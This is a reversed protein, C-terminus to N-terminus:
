EKGDFLFLLVTFFFQSVVFFLIPHTFILSTGFFFIFIIKTSCHTEARQLIRQGGFGGGRGM